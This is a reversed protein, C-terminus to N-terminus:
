NTPLFNSFVQIAVKAICLALYSKGSKSTGALLSVYGNPLVDPWLWTTRGILKELDALTRREGTDPEPAETAWGRKSADESITKRLEKEPLEPECHEGNLAQLM